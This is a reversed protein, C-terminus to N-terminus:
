KIVYPYYVCKSHSHSEQTEYGASGSIAGCSTCVYSCVYVVGRISCHVTEPYGQSNRCEFTHGSSYTNVQNTRRKVASYHGCNAANASVMMSMSMVGAVAAAAIKKFIKSM